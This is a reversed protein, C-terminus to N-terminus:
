AAALTTGMELLKTLTAPHTVLHYSWTGFRGDNNVARCWRQAAAAKIEADGPQGKIEVVLREGNM